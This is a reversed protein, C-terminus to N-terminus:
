TERDTSQSRSREKFLDRVIRRTLHTSVRQRLNRRLWSRNAPHYTYEAAEAEYDRYAQLRGVFDVFERDADFYRLSFYRLLWWSWRVPAHLVNGM